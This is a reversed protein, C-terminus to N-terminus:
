MKYSLYRTHDFVFDLYLLDIRNEEPAAKNVADYNIPQDTYRM